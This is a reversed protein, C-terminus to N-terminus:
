DSADEALSFYTNDIHRYPIGFNHYYDARFYYCTYPVIQYMTGYNMIAMRVSLRVQDTVEGNNYTSFQGPVIIKKFDNPYHPSFYRNLIVTAVAQQCDASEGGAESMVCRCILEEDDPSIWYFHDDFKLVMECDEEIVYTPVNDPIQQTVTLITLSMCAILLNIM